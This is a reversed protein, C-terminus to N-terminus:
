SVKSGQFWSVVFGLFKSVVFGLIWYDLSRIIWPVKLCWLGLSVTFVLFWYVKELLPIGRGRLMGLGVGADSWGRFLM